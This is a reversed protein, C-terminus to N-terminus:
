CNGSSFWIKGAQPQLAVAGAAQTFFESFYVNQYTGQMKEHSKGLTPSYVQLNGMAKIINVYSGRHCFICTEPMLYFNFMKSPLIIYRTKSSKDTLANKTSFMNLFLLQGM